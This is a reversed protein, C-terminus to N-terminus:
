RGMEGVGRRVFYRTNKPQPTLHKVGIKSDENSSYGVQNTGCQRKKGEGMTFKPKAKKEGEEGGATDDVNTGNSVAQSWVEKSNKILSIVYSVDVM